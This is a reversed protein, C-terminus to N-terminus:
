PGVPLVQRRHPATMEIREVRVQQAPRARADEVPDLPEAPHEVLRPGAVAGLVSGAASAGAEVAGRQRRGPPCRGARARLAPGVAPEPLAALGPEGVEARALTWTRREARRCMARAVHCAAAGANGGPLVFDKLPPLGANFRDLTEETADVVAADIVDRGPVSLEGGLDFLQHQINQLCLVIDAPVGPTAIVVGIASNLEDM